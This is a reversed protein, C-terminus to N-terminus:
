FIIVLKYSDYMDTKKVMMLLLNLLILSTYANMFIKFCPNLGKLLSYKVNFNKFDIFQKISGENSVIIELM